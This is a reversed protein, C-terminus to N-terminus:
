QRPCRRDIGRWPREAAAQGASGSGSREGRRLEDAAVGAGAAVLGLGLQPEGRLVLQRHIVGGVLGHEAVEIIRAEVIEAHVRAEEALVSLEQDLGIPGVALEGDELDLVGEADIRQLLIQDLKGVSTQLREREGPVAPRLVLAALAPEMEIGILFDACSSKRCQVFSFWFQFKM